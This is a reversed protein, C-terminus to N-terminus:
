KLISKSFMVSFFVKAYLTGFYVVCFRHTWIKRLRPTSSVVNHSLTQWHSARFTPPKRRTSLNEGGIFSVAVMYSCYQQFHRRNIKNSFIATKIIVNKERSYRIIPVKSVHSLCKCSRMMEILPSTQVSLVLKRHLTKYITTHGKTSTWKAM